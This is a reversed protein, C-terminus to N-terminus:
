LVNDDVAVFDEWSCQLELRVASYTIHKLLYFHIVFITSGYVPLRHDHVLLM